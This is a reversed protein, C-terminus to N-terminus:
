CPTHFNTGIGCRKSPHNQCCSDGGDCFDEREDHYHRDRRREHRDRGYQDRDRGYHDRDRNIWFHTCRVNHIMCPWCSYPSAVVFKKLLQLMLMSFSQCRLLSYEDWRGHHDSWSERQQDWAPERILEKHHHGLFETWSPKEGHLLNAYYDNHHGGMLDENPWM